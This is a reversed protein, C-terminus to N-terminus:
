EHKNKRACGCSTISNRNLRNTNAEITNGCDCQCLWIKGNRTSKGTDAVVVLKGFRKGILNNVRSDTLPVVKKPKKTCGCSFVSGSKLKMLPVDIENGCICRCHWIMSHYENTKNLSYLATLNGFQQGTIDKQRGLKACKHCASVEGILLKSNVVDRYNGCDCKCQWIIAGISNKGVPYLATLKGFRKNTLDNPKKIVKHTEKFLCGCSKTAGSRLNNGLVDLENGCQCKCHWLINGKENRGNINLVTLRGFQKGTLDIYKM